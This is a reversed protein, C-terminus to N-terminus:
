REIVSAVRTPARAAATLRVAPAQAAARVAIWFVTEVFCHLVIELRIVQAVGSPVSVPSGTLTVTM